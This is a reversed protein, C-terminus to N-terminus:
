ASKESRNVIFRGRTIDVAHSSNGVGWAVYRLVAVPLLQTVAGALEFRLTRLTGAILTGTSVLQGDVYLTIPGNITPPWAAVSPEKIDIQRNDALYYDGGQTIEVDGTDGYLSSVVIANGGALKGILFGLQPSTYSAATHTLPDAGMSGLQTVIVYGPSGPVGLDAASTDTLIANAVQLASPSRVLGEAGNDSGFAFPAATWTASTPITYARWNTFLEHGTAAGNIDGVEVGVYLNSQYLNDTATAQGVLTPPDTTTLLAALIQNGQAIGQLRYWGQASVALVGSQGVISLDSIKRIEVKGTAQNYIGHYGQSLSGADTSNARLIVGMDAHGTNATWTAGNGSYIGSPNSATYRFQTGSLIATISYTGNVNTMGSGAITAIFSGSLWSTDDTTVTVTNGSLSIATIARTMGQLNIDLSLAHNGSPLPASQMCVDGQAGVYQCLGPRAAKIFFLGIVQPVWVPGFDPIHPTALDVDGASALEQFRDLSFLELAPIQTPITTGAWAALNAPVNGTLGFKTADQNDPGTLEIEIIVPAMNPAGQLYVNVYRGNGSALLANPVDFRYMGKKHTADIEKFGGSSWATTPSALTALTVATAAGRPFSYYCTLGASNYVLGSLGAGTSSSSDQVFIEITESTAGAKISFKAM